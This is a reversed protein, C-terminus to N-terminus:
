NITIPKATERQRPHFSMRDLVGVRTPPWFVCVAKGIFNARPVFGWVHGDNSNNRHDGLVLYSGAPVKGPKADTVAQQQEESVWEGECRWPDPINASRYERSYVRGDVIKMDYSFSNGPSWKTYPESVMKGNRSITRNQAFVTDGPEGICRKIYDIEGQEQSQPSMAIAAPPAKFVVVDQFKPDRLRYIFKSVLLRDGGTQRGPPPGQLTNEMSGSPIYFAQLVFPQIIFLVLGIAVAASDLTEIIWKSAEHQEGHGHAVPTAGAVRRSMMPQAEAPAAAQTAQRSHSMGSLLRVFERTVLLAAIIAFKWPWSDINFNFM